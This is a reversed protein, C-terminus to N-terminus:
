IKRAQLKSPKKRLQVPVRRLEDPASNGYAIATSAATGEKGTNYSNAIAIPGGSTSGFSIPFFANPDSSDGSGRHSGNITQEEDEDSDVKVPIKKKKKKEPIAAPAVVPVVPVAPAAAPEEAIPEESDPDQVTSVDPLAEEEVPNQESPYADAVSEVNADQDIEEDSDEDTNQCDKLYTGTAITNGAAFASVRQNRLQQNQYHIGYVSHSPTMYGMPQQYYMFANRIPVTYGTSIGCIVALVVVVKIM